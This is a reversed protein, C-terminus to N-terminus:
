FVVSEALERYDDLDKQLSAIKASINAVAIKGLAL